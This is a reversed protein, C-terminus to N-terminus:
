SARKNKRYRWDNLKKDKVLDLDKRVQDFTEKDWRTLVVNKYGKRLQQFTPVAGFAGGPIDSYMKCFRNVEEETDFLIYRFTCYKM